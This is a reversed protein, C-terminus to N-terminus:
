WIWDLSDTSKRDEAIPVRAQTSKQQFNQKGMLSMLDLKVGGNKKSQFKAPSKIGTKHKFDKEIM